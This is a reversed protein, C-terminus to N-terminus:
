RMQMFQEFAKKATDYSFGRRMLYDVAVKFRKKDETRDLQRQKSSLAQLALEAEDLDTKAFYEDIFEQSVGKLKLERKLLPQGRPRFYERQSVWWEIFENDNLYKNDKLRSILREILHQDETLKNLYKNIESETRPRIYILKICRALLSEFLDDSEM